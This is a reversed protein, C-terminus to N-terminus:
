RSGWPPGVDARASMAFLSWCVSLGLLLFGCWWAWSQRRWIGISLAIVLIAYVFNWNGLRPAASSEGAQVLSPWFHPGVVGTVLAMAGSAALLIAAVKRQVAPKAPRPYRTSVSYNTAPPAVILCFINQYIL